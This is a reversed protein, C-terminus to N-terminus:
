GPTPAPRYAMSWHRIARAESRFLRNKVVHNPAAWRSGPRAIVSFCDLLQVGGEWNVLEQGGCSLGVDRCAAAFAGATVSPARWHAGRYAGTRLLGARAATPLRDLAPQVPALMRASRQYAGYNSHHLFAVGDPTLVRALEGLYAALADLEVHVLSDFSFAFDISRDAVM